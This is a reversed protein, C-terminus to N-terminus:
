LILGKKAITSPHNVHINLHWFQVENTLSAGHDLPLADM